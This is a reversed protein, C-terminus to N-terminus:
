TRQSSEASIAAASLIAPRIEAASSRPLLCHSDIQRWDECAAGITPPTSIAISQTSGEIVSACGSALFCSFILSATRACKM